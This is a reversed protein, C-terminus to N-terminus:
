CGGSTLCRVFPDIDYGNVAGDGNIDNAAYFDCDYMARWADPATLAMVFADIDYGNVVGDCNSDARLTPCPEAGLAFALDLSQGQLPHQDPYRLEQWPGPFPDQGLGFVADDNWHMTSTKWGFQAPTPSGPIMAQVDLWYILPEDPSGQQCFAETAPIDFIYMWCVHDGPFIYSGPESPDWWGESIQDQYMSVQFSGPPFPRMWLLEGPMSYAPGSGDPDPIDAHLSLTFEVNAPDDPLVDGLWSGWVVIRTIANRETCLFDDALLVPVTDKVDIGTPELDPPQLWKFECIEDVGDGDWDGLCRAGAGKPDGGLSLCDLPPLMQCTGDPMCCAEPQEPGSQCIDAIGDGDLDDCTTGPGKWQGFYQMQCTLPDTVVCLPAVDGYCCAGQDPSGPCVVTDCTTGAGMPQGGQELCFFPALNECHGDTFCCAETFPAGHVEWFWREEPEGLNNEFRVKQRIALFGGPPITIPEAPQVLEPIEVDLFVDFFSDPPIPLPRAPSVPEGDAYILPIWPWGEQEGGETMGEFNPVEGAPFPVLDMQLIEVPIPAPPWPPPETGGGPPPLPPPGPVIGNAITLVQPGRTDEVDFGILPVYGQNHLGGYISGVPAGDRTWWGVLDIIINSSDVDFLLGLHIITCYPLYQDPPLAWTAEFSYWCEESTPTVTNTFSTFPGDIHQLLTPPGGHSCIMGEIHFDNPWYAPDLIDQHVGLTIGAQIAWAPASSLLAVALLLCASRALRPASM